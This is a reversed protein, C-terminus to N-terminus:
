DIRQVNSPDHKAIQIERGNSRCFREFAEMGENPIQSIEEIFSRSDDTLEPGLERLKAGPM